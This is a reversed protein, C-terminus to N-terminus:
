VRVARTLKLQREALARAVRGHAESSRCCLSAHCCTLAITLCPQPCVRPPAPKAPFWPPRGRPESACWDLHTPPALRLIDQEGPSADPLTVASVNSNFLLTRRVPALCSRKSAPLDSDHAVWERPRQKPTQPTGEM